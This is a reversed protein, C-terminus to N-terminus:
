QRVAELEFRMEVQDSVMDDKVAYTMGWESRLLTTRASIGLTHKRHGFPYSAAKNLTVDLVVPRTEGRLTLMGELKGTNNEGPTFKSAEFVIEPYRKAQLFDRDRLHGDRKKHNTFVSDAAVVVRGSSLQRTDEDYVFQGGAELFLGIVSAYGVHQVQFGISFHEPDIEYTQPAALAAPMGAASLLLAFLLKSSLRLTNM